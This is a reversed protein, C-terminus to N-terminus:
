YNNNNNNDEDATLPQSKNMEYRMQHFIFQQSLFLLNKKNFCLIHM